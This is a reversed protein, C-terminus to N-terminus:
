QHIALIAMRITIVGEGSLLELISGARELYNHLIKIQQVFM